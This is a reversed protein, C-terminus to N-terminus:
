EHYMASTFEELNSKSLFKANTEFFSDVKGAHGVHGDQM